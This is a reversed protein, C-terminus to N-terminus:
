NKIVEEADVADDDQYYGSLENIREVVREKEGSLLVADVVDRADVVDLARLLEENNWLAQRDAAVTAEIILASRYQTVNTEHPVRLGGLQKSSRYTTNRRRCDDYQKETLAHIRFSFLTKGGRAIEVLEPEAAGEVAQLVAELIAGEAGILKSDM